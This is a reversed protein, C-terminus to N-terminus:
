PVRLETERAMASPADEGAEDGERQHEVNMEPKEINRRDRAPLRISVTLVGM